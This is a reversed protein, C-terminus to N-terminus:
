VSIRLGDWRWQLVLALAASVSALAMMVFFTPEPGITAYLRGTVPTMVAMAAGMALASYLTQATAQLEQPAVRSIFTMGGLHAAGFTLAHLAQAITLIWIDVTIGTIYWRLVAAAAGSFILLVPGFRKLLFAGKWFVLIESEAGFAWLFSITSEPIGEGRWYLSGFAYVASHSTMLFAVTAVFLLFIPRTALRIVARMQQPRGNSRTDPLLYFGLVAFGCSVVIAWLIMQEMRGELIVGGLYSGIIFSITGWLRVKGYEADGLRVHAMTISDGLPILPSRCVATFAAVAFFHWYAVALGFMAYGLTMGAAFLILIRRRHGTRDAYHAVVLSAAVIILREFALLDAIEVESLGRSSLWVPWWPMSIGGYFFYAWYSVSLRFPISM